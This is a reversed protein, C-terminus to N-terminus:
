AIINPKVQTYVKGTDLDTICGYDKTVELDTGRIYSKIRDVTKTLIYLFLTSFIFLSLYFM